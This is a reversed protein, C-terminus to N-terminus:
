VSPVALHYLLCSSALVPQRLRASITRLTTRLEASMKEFLFYGGTNVSHSNHDVSIRALFFLRRKIIQREPTLRRVCLTGAAGLVV